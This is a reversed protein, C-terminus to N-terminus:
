GHPLEDGPMASAVQSKSCLVVQAGAHRGLLLLLADVLPAMNTFERAVAGLSTDTTLRANVEGLQVAYQLGMNAKCHHGLPGKNADPQGPSASM